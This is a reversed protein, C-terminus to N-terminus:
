FFSKQLFFLLKKSLFNTKEDLHSYKLSNDNYKFLIGLPTATFKNTFLALNNKKINDAPTHKATEAAPLTSTPL